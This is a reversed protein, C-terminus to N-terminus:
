KIDISKLREWIGMPISGTMELLDRYKQNL